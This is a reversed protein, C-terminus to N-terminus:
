QFQLVVVLRAVAFTHDSVYRLKTVDELKLAGSKLREIFIGYVFGAILSISTEVNLIHRVQADNTRLAEILTILATGYLVLYTLMFSNELPATTTAMSSLHNGNSM